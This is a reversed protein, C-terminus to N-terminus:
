AAVVGDRIKTNLDGFLKSFESSTISLGKHTSLLHDKILKSREASDKVATEPVDFPIGEIKNLKVDITGGTGKQERGKVLEALETDKSVLDSLKAQKHKNEKDIALWEGDVQELTNKELTKKKFNNWKTSAEYTNIDKHFVPKVSGFAVGETLVFNNEKLANYKEQIGSGNLEDFQAEKKQLESFQGQIKELEAKVVPDSGGEKIKKDLEVKAKELSTKQESLYADNYRTLYEAHKEGQNRELKFGTKSQTSVIVGDLIGEANKNALGDWEGKLTAIHTDYHTTITTGLATVQEPTFKQEEIFEKSFEM